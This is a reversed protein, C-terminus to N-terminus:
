PETSKKNRHKKSQKVIPSKSFMYQVTCYTKFNALYGMLLLLLNINVMKGCSNYQNRYNKEWQCKM